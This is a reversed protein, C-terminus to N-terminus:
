GHTSSRIKAMSNIKLVEEETRIPVETILQGLFLIKGLDAVRWITRIENAYNWQFNIELEIISSFIIERKM